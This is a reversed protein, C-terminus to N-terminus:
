ASVNRPDYIRGSSLVPEGGAGDRQDDGGRVKEPKLPAFLAHTDATVM